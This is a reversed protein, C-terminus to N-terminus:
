QFCILLALVLCSAIERYYSPHSRLPAGSNPTTLPLTTPQPTTPLEVRVVCKGINGVGDVAVLEVEPFCCSASYNAATRNMELEHTELTGNGLRSYINTIGTGSDSLVAELRWTEQSCNAGPVPPCPYELHTTTCNPSSVDEVQDRVTLHLVDYNFDDTETSTAEITITITTGTATGNPVIFYAVAAVSKNGQLTVSSPVIRQAFNQDDRVTLNYMATPGESKLTITVNFEQGLRVIEDDEVTLTARSSSILTASLRQFMNGMGDQGRLLVLYPVRPISEIEVLYTEAALTESLITGNQLIGGNVDLLLLESISSNPFLPFGIVSVMLTANQDPNPRGTQVILGPHPGEFTTVIDDNFDILSQGTIRVSYETNSRLQLKWDGTDIPSQLRIVKLDGFIKTTSFNGSGKGITENQGNPNILKVDSPNGRIYITVNQLATDISFTIPNEVRPLSSTMLLLIVLAGSTSDDIISTLEFLQSRTIVVADGGSAAALRRYLALGTEAERKVRRSLSRRRRAFVNTLFFYVQSRTQQILALITNRLEIDKAPADTFVYIQSNPASNTLALQLGHLSMEPFDGGGVARLAAISQKFIDPNTTKIVPGFDPDNFPVLVYFSPQQTTGLTNEIISFTREKVALIDNRMSGTTDIVFTLASPSDINLFRLFLKDGVADRIRQFLQKTAETAVNAAKKHLFGHESDFKDKNIGGKAPRFRGFDFNGGHSCKGSPKNISSLSFYGTTLIKRSKINDLINNRCGDSGCDSCTRENKAARTGIDRDPVIINSNPEMFGLEIWNSHSYFDQLTHLLRGANKRASQFNEQQINQVVSTLLELIKRKGELLTESDFHRLASFFYQFDVFANANAIEDIAKSFKSASVMEGYYLEFLREATLKSEPISNPTLVKGEFNPIQQFIRYTIQLAGNRTIDRHTISGKSRNPQFSLIHNTLLLIVIGFSLIKMKM